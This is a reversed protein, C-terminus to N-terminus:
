KMEFTIEKPAFGFEEGFRINELEVARHYRYVKTEGPNVKDFTTADEYNVEISFKDLPLDGFNQVEIDVFTSTQKLVVMPIPPNLLKIKRVLRHLEYNQTQFIKYYIRRPTQASERIYGPIYPLVIEKGKAENDYIAKAAMAHRYAEKHDKEFLLKVADKYHNYAVHYIFTKEFKSLKRKDEDSVSTTTEELSVNNEETVSEQTQTTENSEQSDSVVETNEEVEDTVVADAEVPVDTVPVEVDVNTEPAEVTTEVQKTEEKKDDGFLGFWAGFAVSNSILLIFLLRKM